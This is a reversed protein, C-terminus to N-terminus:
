VQGTITYRISCREHIHWIAMKELMSSVRSRLQGACDDIFDHRCPQLTEQRLLDAASSDEARSCCTLAVPVRDIM